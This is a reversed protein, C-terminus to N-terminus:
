TRTVRVQCKKEERPAHHRFGIALFVHGNEWTWEPETRLTYTRGTETDTMYFRPEPQTLADTTEALATRARQTM